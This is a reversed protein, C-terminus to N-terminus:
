GHHREGLLYSNSIFSIFSLQFTLKFLAFDKIKNANLTRLEGFSVVVVVGVTDVM